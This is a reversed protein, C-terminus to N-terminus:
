GLQAVLDGSHVFAGVPLQDVHERVQSMVSM